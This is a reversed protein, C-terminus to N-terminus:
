HSVNHIYTLRDLYIDFYKFLNFTTLCLLRLLMKVELSDNCSLSLSLSVNFTMSKTMIIHPICESMIHVFCFLSLTCVNKNQEFRSACRHVDPVLLKHLSDKMYLSILIQDICNNLGM